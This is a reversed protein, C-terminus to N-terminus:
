QLLANIAALDDESLSGAAAKLNLLATLTDLRAKALDRETSYVQQQANLVDINIRVGVEYGLKNSDLALKSSALGQELAKVQALGSTVGLYAQRANVVASRRANDLDSRAKDRLAVAQRYRSQTAGGSYIPIALQLGITTSDIDTGPNVSGFVVTSTQSNRGRTAVLDVTPYHGARQKDIERDAIEQGAQAIAVGVNGQEAQETWKGIDDPQPRGIQADPRLHKLAEPEKDIIARLAERKAQLDNDAAIEQATALDYRAQAEQSDTITATGVEFNRKAAALQEAIATKQARNTALTDEALIVDFYAQAVRLILNQRAQVFQGESQAVAFSAQRYSALNQLRFIPQSLSATWGNSNYKPSISIPPSSRVSVDLENWTTNASLGIAPLLGARGQPLQERGAELSAKASAFQADAVVADRYVSLLDAAQAAGCAAGAILTAIITRKM